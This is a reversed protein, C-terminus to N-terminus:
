SKAHLQAKLNKILELKNKEFAPFLYPQAKIGYRVINRAVPYAAAETLGFKNGKRSIWKTIKYVLDKFTGGEGPRGRFENALQQWDNPLQSVYAAAFGKTGFEVFGGHPSNVSITVQLNEPLVQISQSIGSEDVTQNKVLNLLADDRVGQGFAKFENNIIKEVDQPYAKVEALVKDLNRINLTLSM